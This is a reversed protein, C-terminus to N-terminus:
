EFHVRRRLSSKNGRAPRVVIVGHRGFAFGGLAETLVREDAEYFAAEVRRLGLADV